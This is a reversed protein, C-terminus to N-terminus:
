NFKKQRTKEVLSFMKTQDSNSSFLRCSLDTNYCSGNRQIMVDCHSTPTEIVLQQENFFAQQFVRRILPTNIKFAGMGRKIFSLISQEAQQPTHWQDYRWLFSQMFYFLLDVALVAIAMFGSQQYPNQLTNEGCRMTLLWLCFLQIPLRLTFELAKQSIQQMWQFAYWPATLAFDDSSTPTSQYLQYGCKASFLMIQFGYFLAIKTKDGPTKQILKKGATLLAVNLTMLGLESFNETCLLYGLALIRMATQINTKQSQLYRMTVINLGQEAYFLPAHVYSIVSLADLAPHSNKQTQSSVIKLFISLTAWSLLQGSVIIKEDFYIKNKESRVHICVSDFRHQNQRIVYIAVPTTSRQFWQLLKVNLDESIAANLPLLIILHNRDDIKFTPKADKKYLCDINEMLTLLKEESLLPQMFISQYQAVMQRQIYTEPRM